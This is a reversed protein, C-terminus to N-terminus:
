IPSMYILTHLDCIYMDMYSTPRPPCWIEATSIHWMQTPVYLMYVSSLFGTENGSRDSSMHICMYTIFTKLHVAYIHICIHWMHTQIHLHCTYLNTYPIYLDVYAVQMCIHLPINVHTQRHWMRIHIHTVHAYTCQHCIYMDVRWVHFYYYDVYRPM